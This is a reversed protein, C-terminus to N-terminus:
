QLAAGYGNWTRRWEYSCSFLLLFAVRNRLICGQFVSWHHLAQLAKIGGAGVDTLTQPTPPPGLFCKGNLKWWGSIWWGSVWSSGRHRRNIKGKCPWWKAFFSLNKAVHYICLYCKLLFALSTRFWWRSQSRCLLNLSRLCKEKVSGM